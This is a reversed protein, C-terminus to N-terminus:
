SRSVKPEDSKRVLCRCFAPDCSTCGYIFRPPLAAPPSTAEVFGAKKFFGPVLTYLYVDKRIDRLVQNVLKLGLGSGQLDERVGVCSLLCFDDYEKLEAIALIRGELEGVQFRTLDRAPYDLELERLLDLIEPYDEPQAARIRLQDSSSGSLTRSSDSPRDTSGNTM